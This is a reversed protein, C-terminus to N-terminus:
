SGALRKLTAAVGSPDFGYPGPASKYVVRGDRGIVYLRDPWGTYAAEVADDVDDILAPIEIGLRRVCAGAVEDREGLSKPVAFVVHERVNSAMQWGDSPHAERIYVVYFAV